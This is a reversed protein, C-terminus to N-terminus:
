VKAYVRESAIKNITFICQSDGPVATQLEATVYRHKEGSKSEATFPFPM